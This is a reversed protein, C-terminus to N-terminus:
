LCLRRNTATMPHNRISIRFRDLDVGNPKTSSMTDDVGNADRWAGDYLEQFRFVGHFDGNMEARVFFSSTFSETEANFVDWSIDPTVVSWDGFDANIGFEDIPYSGEAGIDIAHGKPLEFKLSKKPYNTRSFDGGRVRVTANDIVRGNYYVVAEITTNTLALETTTLETFEAEDVFFQFLPLENGSIDTPLVVVGFYNITDAFPAFAVDSEIRYRILTGADAGPLTAQWTNGGTNTM